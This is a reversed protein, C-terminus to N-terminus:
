SPIQSRFSPVTEVQAPNGITFAYQFLLCLVAVPMALTTYFPLRWAKEVQAAPVFFSSITLGLAAFWPWFITLGALIFVVKSVRNRNWLKPLEKVLLLVGPLLLVQNYTSVSPIIVVTVALIFSFAFAFHSSTESQDRLRFCLLAAAVVVSASLFLGLTPSSLNGFLSKANTYQQYAVVARIFEPFWGPLVWQAALCLFGSTLFLGLVFYKRQRWSCITWLTLWVALPLALQPKISSISLCVGALLHRGSALLLACGVLMAMVVLTLQQVEIGMIVPLTGLTLLVLSLVDFPPLKWRLVRLWLMVILAILGTLFIYLPLWLTKFPLYILPALFFVVYAPYAFAQQDMPDGPRSADLTRGYYGLQIERTLPPSYPDRGHLLLERAGLWRAYFDSLNGRPHDHAAADARQYPVLVRRFYGLMSVSLLAAIVLNCGASLRM